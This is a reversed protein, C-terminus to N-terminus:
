IALDRRTFALTGISVLLVSVALLLLASGPQLGNNLPDDHLAWYFPSLNRTWQLGDVQPLISKAVYAFVAVGASAWLAMSRSGTAAGIAFALAGFCIGMLALQTNVALLGSLSVGRLQAPGSVAWLALFLALCVAVAGIAVAGFRELALRVRSVPHALVLDLTGAEEDGAIARTGGAIAFVAVLLPGLIGYVSGRLYGAASTMDYDLADMVSKPMAEIAKAMEPNDVSPWFAAYMAGVAAIAIAWGLLSRRADWISKTFVNRLM